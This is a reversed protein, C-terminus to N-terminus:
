KPRKVVTDVMNSFIEFHKRKPNHRAFRAVNRKRNKGRNESNQLSIKLALKEFMTFIVVMQDSLTARINETPLHGITNAQIKPKGRLRGIGVQSGSLISPKGHFLWNVRIVATFGRFRGPMKM